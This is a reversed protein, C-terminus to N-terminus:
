WFLGVGQLAAALANARSAAKTITAYSELQSLSQFGVVCLGFLNNNAVLSQM